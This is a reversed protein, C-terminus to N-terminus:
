PRQRAFDPQATTVAGLRVGLINCHGTVVIKFQVTEGQRLPTNNIDDAPTPEPEGLGRLRWGPDTEATYTESWTKWPTWNTAQDFKYYTQITFTQTGTIPLGFLTQNLSGIRMEGDILRLFERESPDNEHFNLSGSELSWTIPVGDDAISATSSPLIEWLQLTTLDQSLCFAFARRVGFFSGAVLQLVNLGDWQGDYVSPLKGQLSSLPDAHLAVLANHYVGLTSQQPNATWITRNDFDITSGFNLLSIDDSQITRQVERSIPVNGWTQFERRALILSRFGDVARFVLDGNANITSYHGLGGNAKLAETLIPNTLNQWTTRDVPAQCTFVINPTLVALPGQGLSSDLVSQFIMARIEGAQGPVRFTGGGNLLLNETVSLVSDEYNYNATGSASGGVIDSALFQRGDTLAMWNRGLGNVGMRGAPLEFSTFSLSTGDPNATTPTGATWAGTATYIVTSDVTYATIQYQHTGILVVDNINGTFANTIKVGTVSNGITPDVFTASTTAVTSVTQSGAAKVVAGAPWAFSNANTNQLTLTNGGNSTATLKLQFGNITIYPPNSPNITGTYPASVNVTVVSSGGGAGGIGGAALAFGYYSSYQKLASGSAITSGDGAYLNKLTLSYSSGAASAVSDVRFKQNTTLTVIAGIPGTYPGKLSITAGGTGITGTPNAGNLTGYSVTATGNSRRLTAGDFFLPLNFGDNFIIWREGQWLWCQSATALQRVSATTAESVTATQGSIIFRFLRGAIAAVLSETGDYSKFYCCGQFLNTTVAAQLNNDGGFNLAIQTYPPRPGVFTGRVTANRLFSAKTRPLRLPNQGSDMGDSIDRIYDYVTQPVFNQPNGM